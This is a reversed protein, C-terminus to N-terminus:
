EKQSINGKRFSKPTMGTETKFIRTFYNADLIGVQAAIENVSLHSDLLLEKARKIREARITKVVGCGFVKQFLQYLGSPSINYQACISDVSLNETLHTSIYLRIEQALNSGSLQMINNLWIYNACMEMLQTLASTYENNLYVINKLEANLTDIDLKYQKATETINKRISEKDPSDTFQGILIYGLLTEGYIIPSAIEVLGMHCHYLYPKKTRACESFASIDCHTCRNNLYPNKRIFNCFPISDDPYSALLTRNHDFIAITANSITGFNKVLALLEQKKQFEM